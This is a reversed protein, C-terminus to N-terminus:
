NTFKLMRQKDPYYKYTDVIASGIHEVKIGVKEAIREFMGFPYATVAVEDRWAHKKGIKIQHSSNFTAFFQGKPQRTLRPKLNALCAEIEKPTLHSFLAYAWIFHFRFGKAFNSINFDKVVEVVPNKELLSKNPQLEYKIGAEILSEEKDIGFYRDQKLYEILHIGTRLCGCGIDLVRNNPKLGKSKLFELHQLGHDWRERGRVARRHWNTGTPRRGM